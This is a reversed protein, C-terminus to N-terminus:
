TRCVFQEADVDWVDGPPLHESDITKMTLFNVYFRVGDDQSSEVSVGRCTLGPQQAVAQIGVSAEFEIALWRGGIACLPSFHFLFLIDEM